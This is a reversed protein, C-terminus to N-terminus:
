TWESKPLKPSFLMGRCVGAPSCVRLWQGWCGVSDVQLGQLFVESFIQNTFIQSQKKLCEAGLRVCYLFVDGAASGVAVGCSGGVEIGEGESETYSPPVPLFCATLWHRNPAGGGGGGGRGHHAGKGRGRGGGGQQQQQQQQQQQPLAISAALSPPFSM